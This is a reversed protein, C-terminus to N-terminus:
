CLANDKAVAGKMAGIAITKEDNYDAADVDVYGQEDDVKLQVM